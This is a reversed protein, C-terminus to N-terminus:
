GALTDGTLVVSTAGNELAFKFLDVVKLHFTRSGKEDFNVLSERSKGEGKTGHSVLSSGLNSHTLADVM